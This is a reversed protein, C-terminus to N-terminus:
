LRQLQRLNILGAAEPPDFGCADIYFRSLDATFDVHLWECGAAKAREIALKVVATGIGRRQHDPRTKTDLVFAHDGGDWAVNVFGVLEGDETRATVWGLSHQRIQDWWGPVARGGHGETLAVLERDSVPVRWRVEVGEPLTV